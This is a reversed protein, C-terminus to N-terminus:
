DWLLPPTSNVDAGEFINNRVEEALSSAAIDSQDLNNTVWELGRYMGLCFWMMNDDQKAGFYKAAQTALEQNKIIQAKRKM